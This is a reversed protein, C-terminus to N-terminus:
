SFVAFSMATITRKPVRIPVREALTPSALADGTPPVQASAFENIYFSTKRALKKLGSIWAERIKRGSRIVRSM